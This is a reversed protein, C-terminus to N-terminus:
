SIIMTLSRSIEYEADQLTPKIVIGPIIVPAM